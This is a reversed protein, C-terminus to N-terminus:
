CLQRGTLVELGARGERAVIGGGAAVKLGVWYRGAGSWGVLWGAVTWDNRSLEQRATCALRLRRSGECLLGVDCVVSISVGM